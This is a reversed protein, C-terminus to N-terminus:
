LITEIFIKTFIKQKSEDDIWSKIKAAYIDQNSDLRPCTITISKDKM